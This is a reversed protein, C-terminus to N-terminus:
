ELGDDFRSLVQELQQRAVAIARVDQSDLAVEFDTVFHDIIQRREGLFQEYRRSARALLQRNVSADRPHLKLAALQALRHHIEEESLVGPVKEIILSSMTDEGAIRCEVELIGDLTYTFRIDVSVEGAPRPPVPVSMSGLLINDKIRRAEGQYIGIDMQQQNDHLTSLSKMVSIPVFANREIVPLFFGEEYRSGYQRAVNM